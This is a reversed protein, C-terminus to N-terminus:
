NPDNETDYLEEEGDAYRIYRYRDNRIAHNDQGYTIIAPDKKVKPNQLLPVLSEGKLHDPTPLGCLEVLTPYLDILTVPSYSVQSKKFGPAVVIYPIHTAKEYLVFKEWHEKEGVHFGHDSWLVIITNDAKGSADLADILRGVNYDAFSSAAQYGRVAKNFIKPDRSEEARFTSIFSRSTLMQKAVAPLDDLDDEKLDPM